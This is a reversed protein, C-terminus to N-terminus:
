AGPTAASLGALVRPLTEPLDEAILGPGFARAAEVHLWAAACAAEYCALGRALLGCILGALVDGSGATALWPARRERLAAHVARRGDPAAIVTDAGKLLVCCGSRTAAEAVADLRSWAPGTTAPARLRAALDPFLRAFEGGHPTLVTETGRTLAFFDEPADSWCGLADADLVQARGHALAHRLLLRTRADPGMGPGLCLAGYRPDALLRDLEEPSDLRRLMLATIQAAIEPHAASPAALTVLGAGVRLAARASLRAAGSRGPGGSLILAHGHSYKHGAAAKDGLGAPATVLGVVPGAGPPVPAAQPLGIPAVVLRGTATGGDSLMHGTRPRHFTVTLDVPGLPPLSGLWRGSDACIGSLIDVSVSHHAIDLAHSLLARLATSLPRKLGTGFLADVVLDPRPLAREVAEPDPPLIDGLEGWLQCNGAADGALQAREGALVVRVQWGRTALLRAIVFGDGGNNGPGCLILASRDPKASSDPFTSYISEVVQKGATEMLATGRAEGRAMAARELAQMQTGTLLEPM